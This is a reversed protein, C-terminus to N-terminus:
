IKSYDIMKETMKTAGSPTEEKVIRPLPLGNEIRVEDAGSKSGAASIIEEEEYTEQIIQLLDDIKRIQLELQERRNKLAEAKNTAEIYDQQLNFNPAQIAEEFEASPVPCDAPTATMTFSYALSAQHYAHGEKTLPILDIKDCLRKKLIKRIEMGNLPQYSPQNSPM